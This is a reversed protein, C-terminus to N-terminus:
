GWGRHSHTFRVYLFSEEPALKLGKPFGSAAHPSWSAQSYTQSYIGTANLGRIEYSNVRETIARKKVPSRWM